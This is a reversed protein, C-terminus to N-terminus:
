DRPYENRERAQQRKYAAYQKQKESPEHRNRRRPAAKKQQPRKRLKLLIFILIVLVLLCILTAVLHAKLFALCKYFTSLEVANGTQLEVTALVQKNYVINAKCIKEGKKLPAQLEEPPDIPEIKVDADATTPVLVKIDSNSILPVTDADKARTLKIDIASQGQKLVTTYHLSAFAWDFLTAADIFSYKAEEGKYDQMPSDMVVALYRYDGKAATTVVCYGAANTSGTKIGKAYKYYYLPQSDDLMFNTHYYRIEHFDVYTQTCIQMFIDNKMAALSMRAIDAATTYHDEDHLGDCNVFHTSTCGVKKAWDNMMEVFASVSGAIAEAAVNCADCASYVMILSLLKEMTVEEGASLGVIQADTGALMEIAGQSVTTKQQLDKMNNLIVMATAIKTLSAPYKKKDKNKQALLPHSDDNLDILMYADAYVTQSVEYLADEKAKDAATGLMLPSLCCLIALVVALLLSIQKKM